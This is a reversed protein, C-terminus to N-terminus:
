NNAFFSYVISQIVASTGTWSCLIVVCNNFAHFFVWVYEGSLRCDFVNVVISSRQDFDSSVSNKIEMQRWDPSLRCDFVRNRVIAILFVTGLSKKDVNTLLILIKSQQRGLTISCDM